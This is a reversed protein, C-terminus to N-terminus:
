KCLVSSTETRVSPTMPAPIESRRKFKHDIQTTQPVKAVSPTFIASSKKVSPTKANLPRFCNNNGIIKRSRDDENM